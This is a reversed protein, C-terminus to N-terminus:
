APTVGQATLGTWIPPLVNLVTGNRDRQQYQAPKVHRLNSAGPYTGYLMDFSRNEAFIVVVNKIVSLDPQVRARVVPKPKPTQAPPSQASLPTLGATVVLFAIRSRVSFM